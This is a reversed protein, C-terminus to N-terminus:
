ARNYRPRYNRSRRRDQSRDTRRRNPGKISSSFPAVPNTGTANQLIHFTFPRRRGSPARKEDASDFGHKGAYSPDVLIYDKKNMYIGCHYMDNLDDAAGTHDSHGHTLIIGDVTEDKGITEAVKKAYRGPDFILVHGQDHLVYINEQFQGIPLVDVKM